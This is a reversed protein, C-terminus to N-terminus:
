ALDASQSFTGTVQLGLGYACGEGCSYGQGDADGRGGQLLQLVLGTLGQDFVQPRGAVGVPYPHVAGGCSGHAADPRHAASCGERGLFIV